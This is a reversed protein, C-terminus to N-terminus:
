KESDIKSHSEISQSILEKLKKNLSYNTRKARCYDDYWDDDPDLIQYNIYFDKMQNAINNIDEETLLNLSKETIWFQDLDKWQFSMEAGCYTYWTHTKKHHLSQLLRVVKRINEPSRNKITWLLKRQYKAFEPYQKALYLTTGPIYSKLLKTKRKVLKKFDYDNLYGDNNYSGIIMKMKNNIETLEKQYEETISTLIDKLFQARQNSKKEYKKKFEEKNQSFYDTQREYSSTQTSMIEYLFIFLLKNFVISM